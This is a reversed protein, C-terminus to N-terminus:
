TSFSRGASIIGNKVANSRKLEPLYRDPVDVRGGPKANFERGNSELQLGYCGGPLQIETTGTGSM